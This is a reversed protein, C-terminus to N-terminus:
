EDQEKGRPSYNGTTMSEPSADNDDSSQQRGRQVGRHYASLLGRVADPSRRNNATQGTKEVGGPVLQAMPVRKPLGGDTIGGDVPDLAAAAALWGDDASSHWGSESTRGQSTVSGAMNGGTTTGAVQDHHEPAAATYASGTGRAGQPSTDVSTAFRAGTDPLAEDTLREGSTGRPAPDVTAFWASELERFIPLEMTEDAFALVQSPATPARYQEAPSYEPGDVDDSAGGDVARDDRVARALDLDRYQPIEATLDLSEGRRLTLLLHGEFVDCGPLRTDARAPAVAPCDV